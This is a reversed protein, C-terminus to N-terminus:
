PRNLAKREFEGNVGRSSRGSRVCEFYAHTKYLGKEKCDACLKVKKCKDFYCKVPPNEDTFARGCGGTNAGRAHPRSNGKSRCDTEDDDQHADNRRTPEAFPADEVSASGGALLRIQGRNRSITGLDMGEGGEFVLESKVALTVAAEVEFEGLAIFVGFFRKLTKAAATNADEIVRLIAEDM